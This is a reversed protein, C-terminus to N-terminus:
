RSRPRRRGPGRRPPVNGKPGLKKVVVKSRDEQFPMALDVNGATSKGPQATLSKNGRIQEEIDEILEAPSQYRVERELAMMKQVFYHLHPSIGLGKLEPSRLEDLLRKAMTEHNTEGEFPLKGVLLQYLTNQM